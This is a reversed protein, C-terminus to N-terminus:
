HNNTWMVCYLIKKSTFPKLTQNKIKLYIKM